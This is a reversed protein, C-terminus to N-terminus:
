RLGAMSDREFRTTWSTWSRVFEESSKSKGKHGLGQPHQLQPHRQIRFIQREFHVQFGIVYVAAIQGGFTVCRVYQTPKKEHKSSKREFFFCLMFLPPFLPVPPSPDQTQDKM